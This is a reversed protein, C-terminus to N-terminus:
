VVQNPKLGTEIGLGVNSFNDDFYSKGPPKLKYGESPDHTLWGQEYLEEFGLNQTYFQGYFDVTISKLLVPIRDPNAVGVYRAVNPRTLYVTNGSLIKPGNGPYSINISTGSTNGSSITYGTNGAAKLAVGVANITTTLAGNTYIQNSPNSNSSDVQYLVDSSAEDYIDWILRKRLVDTYLHTVLFVEVNHLWGNFDSFSELSGIQEKAGLYAHCYMRQSASYHRQRTGEENAIPGDIVKWYATDSFELETFRRSIIESDSTRITQSASEWPFILGPVNVEITETVQDILPNTTDVPLPM